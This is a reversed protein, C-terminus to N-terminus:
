AAGFVDGAVNLDFRRKGFPPLLGTLMEVRHPRIRPYQGVAAGTVDNGETELLGVPQATPGRPGGRIREGAHRRRAVSSPCHHLLQPIPAPPASASRVAPCRPANMTQRCQGCTFLPLQMCQEGLDEGTTSSRPRIGSIRGVTTRHDVRCAVGGSRLQGHRAARGHLNRAHFGFGSPAASDTRPPRECLTSRHCRMM